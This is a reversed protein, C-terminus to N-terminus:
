FLGQVHCVESDGLGLECRCAGILIRRLEGRKLRGCPGTLRASSELERGPLAARRAALAPIQCLQCGGRLVAVSCAAALWARWFARADTLRAVAENV